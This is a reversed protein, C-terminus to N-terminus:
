DIAIRLYVHPHTVVQLLRVPRGTTEAATDDQPLVQNRLRVIEALTAEPAATCFM